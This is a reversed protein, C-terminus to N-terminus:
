RALAMKKTDRSRGVTLRQFYIGSPATDANWTVAYDGPAQMAHVLTAVERGLVDYVALSVFEEAAVSYSIQTAANFPNPYNQRLSFEGPSPDQGAPADLVVSRLFLYRNHYVLRPLEISDQAAMDISLGLDNTLILGHPFDAAAPSTWRILVDTSSGPGDGIVFGFEAPGPPLINVMTGLGLCPADAFEDTFYVIFIHAPPITHREYEGLLPDRCDTAATDFGFSLSDGYGSTIGDIDSTDQFFTLDYRSQGFASGSLAALIVAMALTKSAMNM